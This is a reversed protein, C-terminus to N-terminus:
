ESVAEISSINRLDLTSQTGQGFDVRLQETLLKGKFDGMDATKIRATLGKVKGLFGIKQSIYLGQINATPISLNGSGDTQIEIVASEVRCHSGGGLLSDLVSGMSAGSVRAKKEISRTKSKSDWEKYKRTLGSLTSDQGSENRWKKLFVPRIKAPAHVWESLRNKDLGALFMLDEEALDQVAEEYKANFDSHDQITAGSVPQQSNAGAHSINDGIIARRLEVPFRRLQDALLSIALNHDQPLRQVAASVLRLFTDFKQPNARAWTTFQNGMPLSSINQLVRGQFLQVDVDFADVLLVAFQTLIGNENMNLGEMLICIVM